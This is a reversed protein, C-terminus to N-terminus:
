KLVNGGIKFGDATFGRDIDAASVFRCFQSSQLKEYVHDPAFADHLLFLRYTPLEGGRGSEFAKGPALRVTKCFSTSISSVEAATLLPTQQEPLELELLEEQMERHPDIEFFAANRSEFFAMVADVHEEHVQFRADNNHEFATANFRRVLEKMGRATLEGAGGLSKYVRDGRLFSNLNLLTFYLPQHNPSQFLRTLIAYSIRVQSHVSM